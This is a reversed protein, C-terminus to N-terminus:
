TQQHVFKRGYLYSYDVRDFISVHKKSKDGYRSRYVLNNVSSEGWAFFYDCDVMLMLEIVMADLSSVPLPLLHSVTIDHFMKYGRNRLFDLSYSDNENTAIYTVIPM